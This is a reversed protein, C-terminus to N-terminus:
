AGALVFLLVSIGRASVLPWTGAESSTEALAVFFLGFGVGSFVAEVLGPQRFALRRRFRLEPLSCDPM